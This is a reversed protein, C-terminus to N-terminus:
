GADQSSWVLIITASGNRAQVMGSLLLTGAAFDGIRRPLQYLHPQAGVSYNFKTEYVRSLESWSEGKDLSQYIPYYGPRPGSLEWTALIPPNEPCGYNLVVSRAYHTRYNSKFTANKSPITYASVNAFVTTMGIEDSSNTFLAAGAAGAALTLSSLLLSRMDVLSANLPLKEHQQM